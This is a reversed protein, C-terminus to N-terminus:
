TTQEPRTPSHMHNYHKYNILSLCLELVPLIFSWVEVNSFTALRYAHFTCSSM